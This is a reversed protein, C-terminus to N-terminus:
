GGAVDILRDDDNLPCDRAVAQSQGSEVLDSVVQDFPGAARDVRNHAVESHTWAVDISQQEYSSCRFNRRDPLESGLLDSAFGLRSDVRHSRDGLSSRDGGRNQIPAEVIVVKEYRGLMRQARNGDIDLRALQAKGGHDRSILLERCALGLDEVRDEIILLGDHDGDDFAVGAFFETMRVVLNEGLEFDREVRRAWAVLRTEFEGIGVVGVPQQM